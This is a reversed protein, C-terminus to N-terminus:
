LEPHRALVARLSELAQLLNRQDAEPLEALLEALAARQETLLEGSLRNGAPSGSWPPGGTTPIPLREVLGDRELADIVGCLRAAGAPPALRSVARAKCATV